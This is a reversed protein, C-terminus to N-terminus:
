APEGIKERFRTDGTAAYALALGSLYHGTTHGKLKCSEEDWGTMPAAGCTDLGAAKRFNYLMQGDDVGLLWDLMYQQYKQYLTGKKLRVDSIPFFRIKKEEGKKKEVHDRFTIRALAKKESDEIKGEVEVMGERELIEAEEWIVPVTTQSGQATHVIVVSPLRYSHGTETVLSVPRIETVTKEKAEQLVTVTFVREGTCEGYLAKVTLIVKRNGMGHLPRHVTGDKEIFRSEGTDWTFTSGYKGELPLKLNEDVTNLNGIYIADLDKEIIQEKEM